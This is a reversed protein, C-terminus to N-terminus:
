PGPLRDPRGGGTASWAGNAHVFPLHKAMFGAPGDAPGPGMGGNGAWAAIANRLRGLRRAVAAAIAVAVVGPRLGDQPHAERGRPRLALLRRRGRPLSARASVAM